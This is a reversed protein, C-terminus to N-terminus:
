RFANSAARLQYRVSLVVSQGALMTRRAIPSVPRRECEAGRAFRQPQSLDFSGSFCEIGAGSKITPLSLYVCVSGCFQCWDKGVKRARWGERRAQLWVEMWENSDGELTRDCADCDIVIRDHQCDIL